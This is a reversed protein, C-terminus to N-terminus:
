ALPGVARNRVFIKVIGAVAEKPRNGAIKEGQRAAWALAGWAVRSHERPLEFSEGMRPAQNPSARHGSESPMSFLLPLPKPKAPSQNVQPLAAFSRSEIEDFRMSPMAAVSALIFSNIDCFAIGRFLFSCSIAPYLSPRAVICSLRSKM